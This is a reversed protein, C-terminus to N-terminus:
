LSFLMQVPVLACAHVLWGCPSELGVDCGSHLTITRSSAGPLELAATRAMPPPAAFRLSAGTNRTTMSRSRWTMM